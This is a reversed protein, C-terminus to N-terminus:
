LPYSGWKDIFIQRGADLNGGTMPEGRFTSKLSAHDVFCGDHIGIKLGARRVRYCYDDDDFGYATFRDDMYGVKDLTTRPILVAVFCVQRPDERLGVGKPLQNRNGVANTTSAIVGLEPHEAAAKQLLSFGGPTKLIADDNLILVDDRGAARIGINVNRSFIFPREGKVREVKKGGIHIDDINIIPHSAVNANWDIGDDVIITRAEPNLMSVAAASPVVNSFTKSPIIVTLGHESREQKEWFRDYTRPSTNGPHNTATLMGNAPATVIAGRERAYKVFEGDEGIQIALFPHQLAWEREYLLSSGPAFNEDGTYRWWERGDTFDFQSYGSVPRASVRIRDVQDVLRGPASYDDDDWHAVYKGRAQAVGFNRKEGITRGEEVHILRIDEREPVIDRIDEGDAVIVLERPYYSQALYCGIAQPLWGRRNRTVCVCSVGQERLLDANQERSNTEYFIRPPRAYRAVGRRLLDEGIADEVRFPVGPPFLDDRVLLPGDSLLEIM